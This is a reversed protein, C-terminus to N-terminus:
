DTTILFGNEKATKQLEDWLSAPKWGHIKVFLKSSRALDTFDITKATLKYDPLCLENLRAAIIKKAENNTM